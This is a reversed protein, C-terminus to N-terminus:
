TPKFAQLNVYLGNTNETSDSEMVVNLEKDFNHINSVFTAILIGQITRPFFTQRYSGFICALHLKLLTHKRKHHKRVISSQTQSHIDVELQYYLCM